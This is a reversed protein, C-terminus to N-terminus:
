IGSLSESPSYKPVCADVMALLESKRKKRIWSGHISNHAITTWENISLNFAEQVAYYNNLIYGRFYAPDDSNLSLRVGAELFTKIPLDRLDKIVQLCLNSLPCVTLMIEEKVLRRMLTANEILRIGHDIREAHLTDLAGSIYTPDGEEGGHATRHVNRREAEIYMEKFLEPRFGVESSDLGLAAIVPRGDDTGETANSYGGKVASRM